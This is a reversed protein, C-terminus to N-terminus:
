IFKINKMSMKLIYEDFNIVDIVEEINVFLKIGESVEELLEAEKKFDWVKSVNEKILKAPCGGIICYPALTQTFDKTLVSYSAAAITHHPTCCGPNISTNNNPYLFDEKDENMSICHKSCINACASCGCCDKHCIIQIM